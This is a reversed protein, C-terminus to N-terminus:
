SRHPVDARARQSACRRTNALVGYSSGLCGVCERETLKLPPVLEAETHALLGYEAFATRFGEMVEPEIPKEDARSIVIHKIDRGSRGRLRQLDWRAMEPLTRSLARDGRLFWAGVDVGALLCAIVTVWRLQLRKLGIREV